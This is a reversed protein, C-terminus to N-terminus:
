SRTANLSLTIRSFSNSSNVNFAMVDGALFNINWGTLTSGTAAQAITITPPASGTISNAVTPPFAAYTTKWIDIVCSGAPQDGLLTWSQIAAAYPMVLHGKQGSGLSLGGGDMVYEITIPLAAFQIQTLDLSEVQGTQRNYGPVLHQAAVVTGTIGPLSGIVKFLNASSVKQSNAAGRETEFYETGNLAGTMEPLQSIKVNAM